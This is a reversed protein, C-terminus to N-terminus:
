YNSVDKAGYKARNPAKKKAPRFRSFCFISLNTTHFNYRSEDKRFLKVDILPVIVTHGEKELHNVTNTLYSADRVYQNHTIISFDSNPKYQQLKSFKFRSHFDFFNKFYSFQFNQHAKKKKKQCM